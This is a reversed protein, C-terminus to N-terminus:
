DTLRFEVFRTPDGGGNNDSVLTLRPGSEDRWVSIGELNGYTDRPSTWLTVDEGSQLDVRRVRNQWWLGVILKRELLYLTGNEDFDAGVIAFVDREPLYGDIQWLDDEGLRYIPFGEMLPQESFAYVTGEPSIAVAELQRNESFEYFTEHDKIWHAREFPKNFRWVHAWREFSVWAQGDPAVALGEADSWDNVRRASVPFGDQGIISAMRTVQLDSIVEGSRGFRGEIWWGEDAVAVFGMGDSTVELGSVGVVSDTEWDYVGLLEVSDAMALKPLCLSLILAVFRPRM